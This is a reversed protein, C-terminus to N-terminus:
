VNSQVIEHAVGNHYEIRKERRYNQSYVQSFTAVLSNSNANITKTEQSVGSLIQQKVYTILTDLTAEDFYELVITARKMRGKATLKVPEKYDKKM